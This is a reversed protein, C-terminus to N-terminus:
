SSITSPLLPRLASAFFTSFLDIQGWQEPAFTRVTYAITRPRSVRRELESPSVPNSDRPTTKPPDPM